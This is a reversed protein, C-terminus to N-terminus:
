ITRFLRLIAFFPRLRAVSALGVGSVAAPGASSRSTSGSIVASSASLAAIHTGHTQIGGGGGSGGAAASLVNKDAMQPANGRNSGFKQGTGEGEGQLMTRLRSRSSASPMGESTLSSCACTRSPQQGGPQQRQLEVSNGLINGAKTTFM